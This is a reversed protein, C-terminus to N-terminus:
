PKPSFYRYAKWKHETKELIDNNGLKKKSMFFINNNKIDSINSACIKQWVAKLVTTKQQM